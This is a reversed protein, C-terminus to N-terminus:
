AFLTASDDCFDIVKNSEKVAEQCQRTYADVVSLIRITRGAAVVDHAFDLAWEQDAATLM